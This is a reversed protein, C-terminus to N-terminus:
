SKAECICGQRTTVKCLFIHKIRWLRRTTAWGDFCELAAIICVVWIDDHLWIHKSFDKICSWTLKDWWQPLEQTCFSPWHSSYPLIAGGHTYLCKSIIHYLDFDECTKFGHRRELSKEISVVREHRDSETRSDMEARIISDVLSKIDAYYIHCYIFHLYQHEGNVLTAGAWSKTM